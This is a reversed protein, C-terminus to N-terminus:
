KRQQFTGSSQNALRREADALEDQTNINEFSDLSGYNCIEDADVTLVELRDLAHVIREEGVSFAERAAAIMPDRRYVAHTTELWEGEVQPVVADADGLREFLFEVVRRDVFPMDCAVVFAETAQDLASLGTVIGAMPGHDPETDVAYRNPASDGTLVDAFARRQEERCNIILEDVLPHLRDVVHRIMPRDVLTALAKDEEGFRTSRGGALIVAGRNNEPTRHTRTM